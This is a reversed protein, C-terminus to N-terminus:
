AERIWTLRLGDWGYIGDDYLWITNGNDLTRLLREPTGYINTDPMMERGEEQNINITTTM